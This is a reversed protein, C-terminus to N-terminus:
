HFPTNFNDMLERVENNKPDIAYAKNAYYLSGVPNGIKLFIRGLAVYADIDPKFNETYALYCRSEIYTDGQLSYKKAREFLFERIQLTTEDTNKSKELATKFESIARKM